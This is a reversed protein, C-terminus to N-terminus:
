RQRLGLREVEQRASRARWAAQIVTAAQHLRLRPVLPIHFMVAAHTLIGAKHEGRMGPIRTHTCFLGINERQRPEHVSYSHVVTFLQSWYRRVAVGKTDLFHRNHLRRSPTEM